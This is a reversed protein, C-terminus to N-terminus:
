TFPHPYTNIREGPQLKLHARETLHWARMEYAGFDESCCAPFLRRPRECESRLAEYSTQEVVIPELGAEALIEM